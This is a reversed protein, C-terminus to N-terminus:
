LDFYYDGVKSFTNQVSIDKRTRQDAIMVGDICGNVDFNGSELCPVFEHSIQLVSSDEKISSKLVSGNAAEKPTESRSSLSLINPENIFSHISLFAGNFNVFTVRGGAGHSLSGAM